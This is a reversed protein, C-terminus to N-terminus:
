YFLCNYGLNILTIILFLKDCLDPALVINHLATIFPDGNDNCMKIQVQVKQKATVHHGYAVKIYKDTDELSVPTLDQVQPKMYCASGLDLMWNTLKSSDGFYRSYIEDNGSMRAM